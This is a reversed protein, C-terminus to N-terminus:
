PHKQACSCLIYVIKCQLVRYVGSTTNDSSIFFPLYSSHKFGNLTAQGDFM